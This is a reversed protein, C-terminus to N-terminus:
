VIRPAVAAGSLSNKVDGLATQWNRVILFSYGRADETAEQRIRERWGGFQQSEREAGVGGPRGFTENGEVEPWDHHGFDRTESGDACHFRPEENRTSQDSIEIEDFTNKAVCTIRVQRFVVSGEIGFMPSTVGAADNEGGM